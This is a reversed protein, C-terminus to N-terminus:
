TRKILLSVIFHPRNSNLLASLHLVSLEQRFPSLTSTLLPFSANCPRTAKEDGGRKSIGELCAFASASMGDGRGGDGRQMFYELLDQWAGM